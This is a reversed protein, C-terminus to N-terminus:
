VLEKSLAQKLKEATVPKYLLVTFNEMSFNESAETDATVAVVPINKGNELKKLEEAFKGGDMDPMWLDSLILDPVEGAKVRRLAQLPSTMYESKVGIKELLLSLVKCNMEIDDIVWVKAKNLTPGKRDPKKLAPDGNEAKRSELGFFKVTFESGKGVESKLTIEGGLKKVLRTVISLGLGSGQLAASSRNKEFAKGFPDLILKQDNEPIGCGTDKVTIAIDVAGSKELADGRCSIEVGGEKTFKMANGVLNLMIKRLVSGSFRIDPLGEPLSLRLTIGNEEAQRAFVEGTQRMAGELNMWSYDIDLKDAEIKSLELVDNIITLLSHGSTNIAAASEKVPDSIEAGSRLLDSLGIIANLPTRVEHSMTSLFESKIRNSAEAAEKAHEIEEKAKTQMTTDVISEVINLLEGKESLIPECFLIFTRGGMKYEESYAKKTKLVDIVPCHVVFSGGSCAAKDNSQAIIEEKTKGFYKATANNIRIIEGKANFLLVPININELIISKEVESLKLNQLTADKIIAIEVASTIQQMLKVDFEPFKRSSTSYSIFTMGWLKGNQFVPVSILAKLNLIAFQARTEDDIEYNDIDEMVMPIGNKFNQFWKYEPRVNYYNYGEPILPAAGDRTWVYQAYDRTYDENFKYVGAYDANTFEMITVMVRKMVESFELDSILTSLCLNLIGEQKSYKQMSELMDIREKEMHVMGTIDHGVGFIVPNGGWFDMSKRLIEYVYPKGDMRFRFHSSLIKGTRMAEADSNKYAAIEDEDYEAAFIESVARGVLYPKSRKLLRCYAENVYLYRDDPFPARVFVPAPLNELVGELFALAGTEAPCVSAMYYDSGPDESFSFNAVSVSLGAKSDGKLSATMYFDSSDGMRMSEFLKKFKEADEHSFWDCINEPKGGVAAAFEIPVSASLVTGTESIRLIATKESM